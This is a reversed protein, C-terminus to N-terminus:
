LSALNGDFLAARDMASFVWIYDSEFMEICPRIADILKRADSWSINTSIKKTDPM